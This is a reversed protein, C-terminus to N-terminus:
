QLARFPIPKNLPHLDYEPEPFLEKMLARFGVDFEARGCCAEAFIFGGQEVFERLNKKAAATFVPTEHGNFFLIPAQMLDEVTAERADVTQWTLLPGWDHSVLGVLNRVNDRDNNWDNGPGHRVKNILM